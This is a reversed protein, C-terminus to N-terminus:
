RFRHRRCRRTRRAQLIQLGPSVSTAGEEGIASPAMVKGSCPLGINGDLGLGLGVLFLHADRQGPQSVLIGGELHLGVFIRALGDDAAHAFQMKLNKDVAHLALM